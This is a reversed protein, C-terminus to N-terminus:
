RLSWAALAALVAVCAAHVVRWFGHDRAARREEELAARTVVRAPVLAGEVVEVVGAEGEGVLEGGGEGVAREGGEVEGEGGASRRRTARGFM